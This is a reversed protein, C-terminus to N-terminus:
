EECILNCKLKHSIVKCAWRHCQLIDLALVKCEQSNHKVTTNVALTPKLTISVKCKLWRSPKSHMPFVLVSNSNCRSRRRLWRRKLMLTSDLDSCSTQRKNHLLCKSITDNKVFHLRFTVSKAFGVLSKLLTCPVRLNRTRTNSELRRPKKHQLETLLVCSQKPGNLKGEAQKHQQQERKRALKRMSDVLHLYRNGRRKEVRIPLTRRRVPPQGTPNQQHHQVQAAYRTDVNRNANEMRQGWTRFYVTKKMENPLTELEVWREFCEWPTRREAAGHMKSPLSLKDAILSWNFSYEKALQRLNTDDDGTWQSASRFEYFHTSPMAFESPPRFATNAHLREKISKFEPNFLAVGLQDPTLGSNEDSAKPRKQDPEDVTDDDDDDQYDYRSRKKPPSPMKALVKSDCFKSVPPARRQARPQLNQANGTESSGGFPTYLPLENIAKTFEESELLHQSADTVNAAAFLSGPVTAFQPTSPMDDSEPSSIDGHKSPELEPPVDGSSAHYEGNGGTTAAPSHPVETEISISEQDQSAAERVKVAIQMGARETADGNVWYACEEALFKAIAKKAKREQRFDTRMWKMEALLRDHHGKPAPPETCPEMQRLSWHNTYQLAYIRKLIRHDQREHICALQDNTSVAKSAKHLLEGLSRGNPPDQAQIRYLPELYDRNPDEAAGKLAAYGGSMTPLIVPAHDESPPSPSKKKLPADAPQLKEPRARSVPTSKPSATDSLSSPEHNLRPSNFATNKPSESIIESVSKHRLAGSSVRTRMRTPAEAPVPATHPEVPLNDTTSPTATQKADTITAAPKQAPVSGVDNAESIKPTPITAPPDMRSPADRLAKAAQEEERRIQDDPSTFDEGFAERRAIEKQSELLSDHHKSPTEDVVEIKQSPGITPNSEHTPASFNQAPAIDPVSSTGNPRSVEPVGAQSIRALTRTQDNEQGNKETRADGQTQAQAAPSAQADRPDLLSQGLGPEAARSTTPAPGDLSSKSAIGGNTIASSLSNSLSTTSKETTSPGSM